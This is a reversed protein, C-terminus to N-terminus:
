DSHQLPSFAPPPLLAQSALPQFPTLRTQHPWAMIHMEIPDNGDLASCLSDKIHSHDCCHILGESCVTSPMVSKGHLRSMVLLFGRAVAEEFLERVGGREAASGEIVSYICMFGEETRKIEMGFRVERPRPILEISIEAVGPLYWLRIGHMIQANVTKDEQKSRSRTERGHVKSKETHAIQETQINVFVLPVGSSVAACFWAMCRVTTTHVCNEAELPMLLISSVVSCAADPLHMGAKMKWDYKIGSKRFGRNEVDMVKRSLEQLETCQELTLDDLEAIHRPDTAARITYKQIISRKQQLIRAQLKLTSYGRRVKLWISENQPNIKGLHSSFESKAKVPMFSDDDEEEAVGEIIDGPLPMSEEWEYAEEQKVQKVCVLKQDPEM